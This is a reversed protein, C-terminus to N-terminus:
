ISVRVNFLRDLISREANPAGAERYPSCLMTADLGEYVPEPLLEIQVTSEPTKQVKAELVPVAVSMVASVQPAAEFAHSQVM